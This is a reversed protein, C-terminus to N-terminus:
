DEGNMIARVRAKRDESTQATRSQATGRPPAKYTRRFRSPDVGIDRARAEYQADAQEFAERRSEAIGTSTNILSQRGPDSLQQGTIWQKPLNLFKAMAGVSRKANEFEQERVVSVVGPENARYYSILLALDGPGSKEEAAATMTALNQTAQRYAVIDPDKAYDDALQNTTTATALRNQRDAAAAQRDAQRRIEPLQLAERQLMGMDIRSGRQQELTARFDPFRAILDDDVVPMKRNLEVEERQRTDDEKRRSEIREVRRKQFDRSAQLNAEDRSKRQDRAVEELKARTAAARTGASGLGAGFGSVLGEAFSRPAPLRNQLGAFGEIFSPDPAEDIPTTDLELPELGLYALERDQANLSPRGAAIRAAILDRGTLIGPYPSM